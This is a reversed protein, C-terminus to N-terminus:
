ETVVDEVADVLPTVATGPAVTLFVGETETVVRIAINTGMYTVFARVGDPDLFLEDFLERETFDLHVYSHIQGFHEIRADEDPYLADVREDVYMTRFETEDYVVCLLLADDDVTERAVDLAREAGFSVVWDGEDEAM